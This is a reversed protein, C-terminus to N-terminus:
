LIYINSQDSRDCFNNMSIHDITLVNDICPIHFFVDPGVFESKKRGHRYIIAVKHEEVVRFCVFLSFPFTSGILIISIIWLLKDFCSDSGSTNISDQYFDEERNLPQIKNCCLMAM